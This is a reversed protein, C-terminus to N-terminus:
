DCTSEDNLLPLPWQCTTLLSTINNCLFLSDSLQTAKNDVRQQGCSEVWQWKETCFDVGTAVTMKNSDGQQRGRITLHQSEWNTRQWWVYWMDDVVQWLVLLSALQLIFASFHLVRPANRCVSGHIPMAYIYFELSLQHTSLAVDHNIITM